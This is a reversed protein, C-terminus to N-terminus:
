IRIAEVIKEIEEQFDTGVRVRHLPLGISKFIDDKFNDIGQAKETNHSNGDLEIAFLIEHSSLDWVLFDVHRSRIRGWWGRSRREQAEVQVFDGLRVKPFISYRQADLKANLINFFEQESRSFFYKKAYYPLNEEETRVQEASTLKKIVISLLWLFAGLFLFGVIVFYLGLM